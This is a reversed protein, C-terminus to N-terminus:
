SQRTENQLAEDMNEVATHSEKAWTRHLFIEKSRVIGDVLEASIVGFVSHDVTGSAISPTRSKAGWDKADGPM